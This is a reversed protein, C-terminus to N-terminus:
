FPPGIFSPFYLDRERELRRALYARLATQGDRAAADTRAPAHLSRLLKEALDQYARNRAYLATVDYAPIEAADNLASTLTASLSPPLASGLTQELAGLTARLDENDALLFPAEREVRAALHNLLTTASRVVSGAWKDDGVAPLVMDTLQGAIREILDKSSPRM